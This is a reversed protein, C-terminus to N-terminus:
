EVSKTHVLVRSTTSSTTSSTARGTFKTITTTVTPDSNAALGLPVVYTRMKQKRALILILVWCLSAMFYIGWVCHVSGSDSSVFAVIIWLASNLSTKTTKHCPPHLDQIKSSVCSLCDFSHKWFVSRAHEVAFHKWSPHENSSKGIYLHGSSWEMGLVLRTLGELTVAFINATKFSCPCFRCIIM